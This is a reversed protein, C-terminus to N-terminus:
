LGIRFIIHSRRGRAGGFFRTAAHRVRYLVQSRAGSTSHKLNERTGQGDHRDHEGRRRAPTPRGATRCQSLPIILTRQMDKESASGRAEADSYRMCVAGLPVYVPM